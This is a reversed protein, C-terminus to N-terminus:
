SSTCTQRWDKWDDLKENEGRSLIELLIRKILADMFKVFVERDNDEDTIIIDIDGSNSKGRRYSGVIEFKSGPNKVESFIKELIDAYEEIEDRPIRKM